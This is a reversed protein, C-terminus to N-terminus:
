NGLVAEPERHQLINVIRGTPDRVFFRRVGWPEDAPGHTVELDMSRARVLIADVDDVEISLDPVPTDSGGERMLRLQPAAQTDAALTVIWGLDMVKELGLLGAYFDAVAVPNSAALNAVIRRVTM